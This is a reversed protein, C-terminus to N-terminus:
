AHEKWFKLREQGVSTWEVESKELRALLALFFSRDHTDVSVRLMELWAQEDRPWRRLADEAMSRAQAPEKLALSNRVALGALEMSPETAYAYHLAKALTLQQRRLLQGELLGSECYRQLLLIYQKQLDTHDPEAQLDIQCRQLELQLTRQLETITATAYHATEADDNFRALLLLDLNQMPDSRLLNMMQQRRQQPSNILLAEELPVTNRESVDISLRMVHEENRRKLWEGEPPARHAVAGVCWLALPGFLPLLLMWFLYTAPLLIHRRMFRFIVAACLLQHAVLAFITSNM